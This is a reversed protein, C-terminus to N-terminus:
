ATGGMQDVSALATDLSQTQPFYIFSRQMLLYYLVVALYVFLVTGVLNILKMGVGTRTQKVQRDARLIRYPNFLDTGM